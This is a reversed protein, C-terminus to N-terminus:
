PRGGGMHAALADVLGALPDDGPVEPLTLVPAHVAAELRELAREAAEIRRFAVEGFVPGAHALWGEVADREAATFPDAPMRNLLVGGAPMDTEALGALLEIAETVPLQEPLTVVWAAGQEPDNLIAQGRRLLAAIPGGPMLRLLIRPLGTLALTHGTAPMDLVVMDHRRRGKHEAELLTLLHYFVGMEHFSPAATLFKDVAKSRLAAKILARGPLVTRLFGEHGERAWLHCADLNKEVPAPEPSLGRGGLLRGIASPGGEPNAIECVLTRKGARAAARALAVTVTTRGVGGKGSVLLIRRDLFHATRQM